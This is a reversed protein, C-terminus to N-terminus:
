VDRRSLAERMGSFANTTRGELANQKKLYENLVHNDKYLIIWIANVVVLM